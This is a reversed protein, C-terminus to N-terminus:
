RWRRLALVIAVLPLAGALWGLLGYLLDTGQEAPLADVLAVAGVLAWLALLLTASWFVVARVVGRAYGPATGASGLNSVRGAAPLLLRGSPRTAGSSSGSRSSRTPKTSWNEPSPLRTASVSAPASPPSSARYALYPVSAPAYLPSASNRMRSEAWSAPQTIGFQGRM